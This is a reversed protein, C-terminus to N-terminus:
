NFDIKIDLNRLPINNRNAVLDNVDSKVFQLQKILNKVDSKDGDLALKVRNWHTFGTSDTVTVFAMFKM